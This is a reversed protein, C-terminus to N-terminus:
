ELDNGLAINLSEEEVLYTFTMPDKKCGTFVTMVLNGAPHGRWEKTLRGILGGWLPDLDAVVLEENWYFRNPKDKIEKAWESGSCCTDLSTEKETPPTDPSSVEIEYKKWKHTKYSKVWPDIM